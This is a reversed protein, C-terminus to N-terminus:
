ERAHKTGEGERISSIDYHPLRNSLIEFDEDLALM